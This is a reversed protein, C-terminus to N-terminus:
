ERTLSVKQKLYIDNYQKSVETFYQNQAFNFVFILLAINSKVYQQAAPKQSSSSLYDLSPHAPDVYLINLNRDTLSHNM